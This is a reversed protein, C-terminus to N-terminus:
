GNEIEVDNQHMKQENERRLADARRQESAQEEVQEEFFRVNAIADEQMEIDRNEASFRMEELVRDLKKIEEEAALARATAEKSLEELLESTGAASRMNDDLQQRIASIAAEESEAVRTTVIMKKKADMYISLFRKYDALKNSLDQAGQTLKDIGPRFTKLEQWAPNSKAEEVLRAYKEDTRDRLKATDKDLKAVEDQNYACTNVHNLYEKWRSLLAEKEHQKQEAEAREHPQLEQRLAFGKKIADLGEKIVQEHGSRLGDSYINIIEVLMADLNETEYSSITPATQIKGLYFDTMKLYTQEPTDAMSTYRKANLLASKIKEGSSRDDKAIKESSTDKKKKRFLQDM